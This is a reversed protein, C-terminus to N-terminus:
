CQSECHTGFRNDEGCFLATADVDNDPKKWVISTSKIGEMPLQLSVGTRGLWDEAACSWPGASIVVVDAALLRTEKNDSSSGPSSTPQYQVGTVKRNGRASGQDTEIGVCKGLVLNIKPQAAMMKEVFETPTIQATDAL